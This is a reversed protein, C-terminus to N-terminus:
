FSLVGLDHVGQHNITPTAKTSLITPQNMRENGRKSTPLYHVSLICFGCARKISNIFRFSLSTSSPFFIYIRKAHFCSHTANRFMFSSSLTCSFHVVDAGISKAPFTASCYFSYNLAFPTCIKKFFLEM